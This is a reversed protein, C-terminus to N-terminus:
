IVNKTLWIIVFSSFLILDIGLIIGILAPIKEILKKNKKIQKLGLFGFIIALSSLLITLIFEWIFSQFRCIANFLFTICIISIIVLTFSALVLKSYKKKAM